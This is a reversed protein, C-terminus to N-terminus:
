PWRADFHNRVIGIMWAFLGRQFIDCDDALHNTTQLEESFLSSAAVVSLVASFASPESDGRVEPRRQPLAFGAGPPRAQALRVSFGPKQAAVVFSGRPKAFSPAREM